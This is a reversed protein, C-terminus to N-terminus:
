LLWPRHFFTVENKYHHLSKNLTEPEQIITYPKDKLSLTLRRILLFKQILYPNQIHQRLPLHIAKFLVPAVRKQLQYIKEEVAIQQLNQQAMLARQFTM